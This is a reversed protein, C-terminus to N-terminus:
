PKEPAAPGLDQEDEAPDLDLGTDEKPEASLRGWQKHGRISHAVVLMGLGVLALIVGQDVPYPTGMGVALTLALAAAMGFASRMEWRRLLIIVTVGSALGLLALWPSLVLFLGFFTAMGDGGKFRAFISNWHGLIAVAGPLLLLPGSLGLLMAIGITAAGKAVDGVFVLAGRRRGVNWFVNATGATGRGTSYIEVGRMGAAIRAFPISGLLYGVAVSALIKEVLIIDM